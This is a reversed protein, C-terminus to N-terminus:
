GCQFFLPLNLTKEVIDIIRTFKATQNFIDAICHHFILYTDM